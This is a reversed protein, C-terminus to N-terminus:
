YGKWRRWEIWGILGFVLLVPIAWAAVWLCSLVTYM